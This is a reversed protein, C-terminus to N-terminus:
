AVDLGRVGESGDITFIKERVAAARVRAIVHSSDAFALGFDGGGAGSPKYV